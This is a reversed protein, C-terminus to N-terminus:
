LATGRHDLTGEHYGGGRTEPRERRVLALLEDRGREDGPVVLLLDVALRGVLLELCAGRLLRRGRRLAAPQAPDEVLQAPAARRLAARALPRHLGRRLARRAGDAALDAAADDAADEARDEAPLALPSWIAFVPSRLACIRCVSAAISSSGLASRM